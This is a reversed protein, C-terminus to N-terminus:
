QALHAVIVGPATGAPAEGLLDATVGAPAAWGFCARRPWGLSAVDYHCPAPHTERAAEETAAAVVAGAYEGSPAADRRIHWLRM